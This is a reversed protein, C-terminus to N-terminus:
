TVPWKSPNILNIDDCELNPYPVPLTLKEVNLLAELQLATDVGVVVRDIWEQKLVFKLAITLADDRNNKLYDFWANFRSTWNKYFYPPLCSKHMLLLGQLFPSRTHVEIGSDKLKNSWGSLLIQQDFINFPAQVIDLKTLKTIEGLIEPSYISIGFKFIINQEKLTQLEKVIMKGRDGLLVEPRHLLVAYLQSQGLKQCSKKVLNRISDKDCDSEFDLSIKTVINFRRDRCLAGIRAESNGYAQATDILEIGADEATYLLKELESQSVKGSHNTLGYNLGFNASGLALKTPIRTM